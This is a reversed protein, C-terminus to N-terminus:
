TSEKACGPCVVTFYETSDEGNKEVIGAHTIKECSECSVYLRSVLSQCVRQNPGTTWQQVQRGRAKSPYKLNIEDRFALAAELTTKCLAHRKGGRYMTVTYTGDINEVVSQAVYKLPKKKSM